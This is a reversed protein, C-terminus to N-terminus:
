YEDNKEYDSLGSDDDIEEMEVKEIEEIMNNNINSTQKKTQGSCCAVIFTVASFDITVKKMKFVRGDHCVGKLTGCM